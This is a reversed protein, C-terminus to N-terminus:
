KTLEDARAGDLVLPEDSHHNLYTEVDKMLFYVRGGLTKRPVLKGEKIYRYISRYSVGVQEAFAEQSLKTNPPLVAKKNSM